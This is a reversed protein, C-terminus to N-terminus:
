NEEFTLNVDADNCFNVEMFIVPKKSAQIYYKRQIEYWNVPLFGLECMQNYIKVKTKAQYLYHESLFIIHSMVKRVKDKDGDFHSKLAKCLSQTNSWSCRPNCDLNIFRLKAEEIWRILHPISRPTLCNFSLDLIGNELDTINILNDTIEAFLEDDICTSSLSFNRVKVKNNHGKNQVKETDDDGENESNLVKLDDQVIQTLEDVNICTFSVEEVECDSDESVPKENSPLIIKHSFDYNHKVNNM